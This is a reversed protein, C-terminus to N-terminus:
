PPVKFAIYNLTCSQYMLGESISDRIRPIQIIADKIKSYGKVNNEYILENNKSKSMTNLESENLNYDSINFTSNSFDHDVIDDFNKDVLICIRLIIALSISSKEDVFRYAIAPWPPYKTHTPTYRM